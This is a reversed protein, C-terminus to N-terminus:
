IATTAASEQAPKPARRVRPAPIVIENSFLWVEDAQLTEAIQERLEANPKTWGRVIRSLLDSPIDLKQALEIQRMGRAALVMKLNPLM